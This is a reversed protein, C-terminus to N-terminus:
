YIVWMNSNAFDIYQMASSRLLARLRNMV